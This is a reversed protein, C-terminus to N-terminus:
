PGQPGAPASGGARSPASAPAPSDVVHRSKVGRASSRARRASVTPTSVAQSSGRREHGNRVREGHGVASGPGSQRSPDPGAVDVAVGGEVPEPARPRRVDQVLRAPRGVRQRDSRRTRGPPVGGGRAPDLRSDRGVLALEASPVVARGGLIRAQQGDVIKLGSDLPPLRQVSRSHARGDVPDVLRDFGDGGFRDRRGLPRRRRHENSTPRRDASAARLPGAAAM